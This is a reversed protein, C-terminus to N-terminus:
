YGLVSRWEHSSPTFGTTRDNFHLEALGLGSVTEPRFRLRHDYRDAVYVNGSADFAIGSPGSFQGDGTGSGGWQLLYGPPEGTELFQGYIPMTAFVKGRM